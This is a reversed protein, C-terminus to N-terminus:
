PGAAHLRAAGATQIQADQIAPPALAVVAGIAKGDAFIGQSQAAAEIALRTTEHVGTGFAMGANVAIRFRGEPAPDDRWEPVLFFRAGVPMPEMKGRAFAVWDRQEEQRPTPRFHAFREVLAARDGEDEFFARLRTDSLEVIGAPRYDTLEAILLDHEEAACELELSFM